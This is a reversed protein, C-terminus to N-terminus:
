TLGQAVFVDSFRPSFFYSFHTKIMIKECASSLSYTTQRKNRSIGEGFSEIQLRQSRFIHLGLKYPKAIVRTPDNEKYPPKEHHDDLIKQWCRDNERATRIDGLCLKTFTQRSNTAITVLYSSMLHMHDLWKQIFIHTTHKQRLFVCFHKM